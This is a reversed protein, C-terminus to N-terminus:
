PSLPHLPTWANNQSVWLGFVDGFDVILESSGDGDLDGTVMTDASLEHRQVWAIQNMWSWLGYGPGFDVLLDDQSNGDLDGTVMTEPSRGHLAMWSTNNQRIWLGVGPGFDVILEDQGTNDLDGAGISQPSLSHVAAWTSGNLRVWLGLGPGFDVVVDDSPVLDLDAGLLAIPSLGHWQQWTSNNLWVWLGPPGFDVVVEDVASNDVDAVTLTEPSQPHVLTWSAHNFRVWLGVGLGFDLIVEDRPNADLDAIAMLETSREHLLTWAAHNMWVWVGVGPGFDVIVDQQGTQDLDGAVMRPTETAEVSGIDVIRGAPRPVGRQDTTLAAASNPGGCTLNVVCNQGADLAPSGPLPLFSPGFGGYDALPGLLPDRNVLDSALWGSSAGVIGVINNGLSTVQGWVDPSSNGGQNGAVISNRLLVSTGNVVRIGGSSLTGTNGSVTVNTLTVAGESFLAGGQAPTTNGAFTSNSISVVGAFYAGAGGTIGATNEIFASRDITVTSVRVASTQVGGGHLAAANHSVVSDAITLTGASDNIGGGINATNGTVVVHSLTLRGSHNQIAGGFGPNTIGVGNGATFTAHSITVVSGVGIMLIRSAHNGSITLLAAGPGVIDLTGNPEITIESGALTITQPTSFVSPDFVITDNLPSANAAAVAERLSCDTACVGDNTDAVKTVTLVAARTTGAGLLTFALVLGARGFGTV